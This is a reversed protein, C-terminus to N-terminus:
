LLVGGGDYGWENEAFVFLFKKAEEIHYVISLRKTLVFVLRM